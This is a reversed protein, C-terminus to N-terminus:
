RPTELCVQGVLDSVGARDRFKAAFQRYGSPEALTVRFSQPMSEVQVAAVFDPSDAWLVKFKQYAQSRSEFQVDRVAPDGWLADRLESIQPLAIDDDLFVSVASANDQVPWTCTAAAPGLVMAAASVTPPPASPSLALNLAVTAALVCAAASGGVLLRRRRRIRRGHTMALLVPDGPPPVPEEDLAREFLGRLNQQM